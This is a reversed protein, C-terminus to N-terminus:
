SRRRRAVALALGLAALAGGATTTSGGPVRCGCFGSAEPEAAPTPNVADPKKCTALDLEKAAKHAKPFDIPTAYNGTNQNDHHHTPWELVGDERGETRWAYLWGDRTGTVVELKGDGDLDGVAPSPIIWQGTFKPFGPAERGCADVARVYYGGTGLITEPYDDGSVDAVTANHFFTYDETITPSGPFMFTCKGSAGSSCDRVDASNWFAVQQEYEQRESSSLSLALTFSAGLAIVDPKGDQNLDGVSPQSFVAIFNNGPLNKQSEFNEGFQPDLTAVANPFNGGVVAPKQPHLPLVVPAAGTGHFIVEPVGDGNVDAMMGASVIGEGVLPFLKFSGVSVPWGEVFPSGGPTATGRGDILFFAGVNGGNGIYENSGVAIEPIGDGTMDGVAPTTVVRSVRKERELPGVYDVLVPFGPLDKGAGDFVYVHGDFAAVVVDLKKDKNMDVLTVGAFAGRALGHATDMCAVGDPLKPQDGRPCSPVDPLRKPWGAVATGDKHIAYITGPWTGFLIDDKGDGDIDGIAPASMLTERALDVSMAGSTWSNTGGLYNQVFASAEKKDPQLGDINRTRFPWGPLESGDARFAHLVGDSTPYLIDRKGDGDIDVLRPSAEGSAGLFKPFGPLLTPDDHIYIPRRAEGKATGAGGPYTATVQVRVTITYRNEREAKPDVTGDAKKMNDIKLDKVKLFGLPTGDAGLGDGGGTQAPITSVTQWQSEDPEVGPAWQITGEFTVGARAKIVGKIPVDGTVRQPYVVEFLQPSVLDVVPPIKGEAVMKVAGGANVRGYGFRQSFTPKSPYYRTPDYDPHSEDYSEPVDILDASMKLLQEVEGASLEPTLKKQFGMSYVLGAIGSLNGTAESACGSGSASLPIQGGFNSCPHFAFFTGSQAPEGRDKQIAHVILTHNATAPMNHHRSNEDAASAIIVVGKKWALDMAARSLNSQNVSGLAEQVVKVGNDAAYTVAQAYDQVDVIFSDGVRLPIHRCKPCFGIGGQGNNGEATSDHAEGTGHGYRTDDYADNDDKLFDWGCIDDTFGNGDDDVKDSFLVILDGPDLISNANADKFDVVGAKTQVKKSVEYDYLDFLGDGNCDFGALDGEGGCPKGDKDLPKANVLEKENLAATHVLDSADWKIGSDLVAIKTRPDGVTYTWAVDASMGSATESKRFNTFGAPRPPIWSWKVWDGGTGNIDPKGDKKPGYDPDTPWNAPDKLQETTAGPPPPWGARADQTASAFAVLAFLAPALLLRRRM